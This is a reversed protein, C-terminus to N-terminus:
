VIKEKDIEKRVWADGVDDTLFPSTRRPTLRSALHPEVPLSLAPTEDFVV